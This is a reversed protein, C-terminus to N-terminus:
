STKSTSTPSLSTWCFRYPFLGRRLFFGRLFLLGDFGFFSVDLMRDFPEFIDIIDGGSVAHCPKDALHSIGVREMVRETVKMDEETPSSFAGIRSSRGILVTQFATYSTAATGAQPVYAMKKWLTSAPIGRIDEGDLLSRGSQWHLMDMMCRLMTTKGSGNPGLVALIEGPEVEINIDKLIQPGGKYAFSGDEIKLLPAAQRNMESM